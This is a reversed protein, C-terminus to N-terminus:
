ESSSPREYTTVEHGQSGDGPNTDWTNRVRLIDCHRCHEHIIVGGGNGFVGPNETLGGERDVTATWEHGDESTCEPADEDIRGSFSDVEYWSPERGPDRLISMIHKGEWDDVLLRSPIRYVTCSAWCPADYMRRAEEEASESDASGTWGEEDASILLKRDAAAAQEQKQMGDRTYHIIYITHDPAPMCSTVRTRACPAYARM